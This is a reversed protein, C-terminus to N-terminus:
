EPKNVPSTFRGVFTLQCWLCSHTCGSQHPHRPVEYMDSFNSLCKFGRWAWNNPCCCALGRECQWGSKEHKIKHM